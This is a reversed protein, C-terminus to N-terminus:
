TLPDLVSHVSPGSKRSDPGESMCAQWTSRPPTMEDAGVNSRFAQRMAEVQPSAGRPGGVLLKGVEYRRGVGLTCSCRAPERRVGHGGDLLSSASGLLPEEVLARQHGPRWKGTAVLEREVAADRIPLLAARVTEVTRGHDGVVSQAPKTCGVGERGRGVRGAGRGGVGGFASRLVHCWRVALAVSPRAGTASTPSRTKCPPCALAITVHTVGWPKRAAAKGAGRSM